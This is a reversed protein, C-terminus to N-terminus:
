LSRKSKAIVDAVTKNEPDLELAKQYAKIGEDKRGLSMLLAGLNIHTNAVEPYLKSNLTFIKLAEATKEEAILQYGFSNIATESLNYESDSLDATAIFSIIEDISKEAAWLEPIQKQNMRKIKLTQEALTEVGYAIREEDTVKTSDIEYRQWPEYEGQKIYQTGYIQPKERRMLDRDIAAALLWKNVASDLAIAKRMMEVALRSDKTEYGHQYIMAAHYHDKGTVILGEELMQNVRALRESDRVSVESWDIIGKRDKQDAEHLQALEQNDGEPLTQQTEKEPTSCSLIIILVFLYLNKM